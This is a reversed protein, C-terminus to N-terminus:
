KLVKSTLSCILIKQSSAYSKKEDLSMSLAKVLDFLFDYDEWSELFCNMPNKIYEFM